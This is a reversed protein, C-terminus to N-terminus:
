RAWVRGANIAAEIAQSSSAVSSNNRPKASGLACADAPTSKWDSVASGAVPGIVGVAVMVGVLVGTGVSVGVWGGGVGSGVAVHVGVGRGVAVGCGVLVGCGVAGDVM